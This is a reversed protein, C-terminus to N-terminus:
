LIDAQKKVELFRQLFRKVSSQTSTWLCLGVRLKQPSFSSEVRGSGFVSLNTPLRFAVHAQYRTKHCLPPHRSRPHIMRTDDDDDDDDDDDGDDGDDFM